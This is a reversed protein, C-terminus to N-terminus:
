MPLRMERLLDAYRPDRRLNELLPDVKVLTLGGDRQRYARDLWAFAKDSEGRYAYVEAIEFAAGNQDTAIVAHLAKDSDGQRNLAQYVLAESLQRWFNSPEQEIETLAQEPRGQALLVEGQIAHDHEKQPNLELAKHLATRADDYKEFEYLQAGLSTYSRPLLPDIIIARKQSEIAERLRGLAEDLSSQYRLVDASGPELEAAKKGSTEAGSWDWDYSYQIYGLALYASALSADLAIARRADERAKRMGESNEILGFGAMLNYTLSRLVWAPAYRADLTIAQNAFTLANELDEKREGRGEFYRGQLYAQYADPNTRRATAPVSSGNAGLLRIELAGSVAAAIEDQVAFIDSIRRDYTQSWIQFGSKTNTLEVSIRFRDREKRVSGELINSVGLKNGVSRLDENRGRFEFASSRAVVRLGPVQALDTILEEALGDTFYQQDQNPSLDTFPLVAISAEGPTSAKTEKERRWFYGASLVAVLLALSVLPALRLLNQKVPAVVATDGSGSIGYNGNARIITSDEAIDPRKENGNESPLNRVEAVFRYGHGPVTAIFRCEQPSEGLAKRITSINVALNIEEVFTDPWIQRLLEDKTVMRGQNRVLCILTDFAKPTLSVPTEDCLLIREVPDLVFRDFRYIEKEVLPM